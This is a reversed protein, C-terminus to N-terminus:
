VELVQYKDNKTCWCMQFNYVLFTCLIMVFIAKHFFLRFLKTNQEAYKTNQDAYKTNQNAYKINQSAYKQNLATGKANGTSFLVSAQFLVSVGNTANSVIILYTCVCACVRVYVHELKLINENEADGRERWLWTQNTPQNTSALCLIELHTRCCGGRPGTLRGLKNM